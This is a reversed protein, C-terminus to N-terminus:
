GLVVSRRHVLFSWSLAAFFSLTIFFGIENTNYSNKIERWFRGDYDVPNLFTRYVSISGKLRPSQVQAALNRGDLSLFKGGEFATKLWSTEKDGVMSMNTRVFSRIESTTSFTFDDASKKAM